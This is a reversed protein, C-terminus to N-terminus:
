SSSNKYKMLPIGILELVVILNHLKSDGSTLIVLYCKGIYFAPKGLRVFGIEFSMIISRAIIDFWYAILAYACILKLNFHFQFRAVNLFTALFAILEFVLLIFEFSVITLLPIRNTDNVTIKHYQLLM